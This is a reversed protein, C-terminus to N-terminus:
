RDGPHRRDRWERLLQSACEAVRRAASAACREPEGTEDAVPVERAHEEGTQRRVEEHDSEEGGVILAAEPPDAPRRKPHIPQSAAAAGTPM